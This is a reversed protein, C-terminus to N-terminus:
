LNLPLGIAQELDAWANQYSVISDFYSSRLQQYQQQALIATALDIKGLEYSRRALQAMKEASPLLEQQFKAINVRTMQLAEYATM